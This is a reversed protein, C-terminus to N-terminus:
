SKGEAVNYSAIKRAVQRAVFMALCTALFLERTVGGAVAVFHQM